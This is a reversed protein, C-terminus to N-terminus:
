NQLSIVEEWIQFNSLHLESLFILLIKPYLPIPSSLYFHNYFEDPNIFKHITCINKLFFIAKYNVINYNVFRQYNLCQFPLILAHTEGRGIKKGFIFIFFNINVFVTLSIKPHPVSVMVLSNIRSPRDPIKLPEIIYLVVM